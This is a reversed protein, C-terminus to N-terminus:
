REELSISDQDVYKWLRDRHRHSGSQHSGAGYHGGVSASGEGQEEHDRRQCRGRAELGLDRM